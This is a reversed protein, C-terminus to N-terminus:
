ISSDFLKNAGLRNVFDKRRQILVVYVRGQRYISKMSISWIFLLVYSRHAPIIWLSRNTQVTATNGNVSPQILIENFGTAKESRVTLWAAVTRPIFSSQGSYQCGVTDNGEDSRTNLNYKRIGEAGPAVFTRCCSVITASCFCMNRYLKIFSVRPHHWSRCNSECLQSEKACMHALTDMGYYPFVRISLYTNFINILWM